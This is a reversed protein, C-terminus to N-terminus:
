VTGPIQGPESVWEVQEGTFPHVMRLKWAHLFFEGNGKRKRQFHSNFTRDGYDRDLVLPNGIMALHQRIQHKRGTEIRVEVLSCDGFTQLLKYHSVAPVKKSATRAALPFRITGNAPSPVWKVLALYTKEIGGEVFLGELKERDRPFKGFLVLGSTDRDLRHLPYPKFGKKEHFAWSRAWGQLTRDEPIFEAPVSVMGAPKSLILVHDDEFVVLPTGQVRSRSSTRRAKLSPSEAKHPRKRSRSGFRDSRSVFGPRPKKFM